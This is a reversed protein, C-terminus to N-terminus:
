SVNASELENASATPQPNVSETEEKPEPETNTDTEEEDDTFTDFTPKNRRTKIVEEAVNVTESLVARRKLEELYLEQTIDNRTRAADLTKLDETARVSLALNSEAISVSFDKPMEDGTWRASVRFAEELTREIERAYREVDSQFKSEDLARGTATPQGTRRMLPELSLYEMRAECDALDRFGIEAGKGTLEIWSVGGDSPVPIATGTSIKIKQDKQLGRAELFPIRGIGTVNRQLSTSQWHWLNMYALDYLVPDGTMFGTRNFYGTVIPIGPYTHNGSDVPRYENDDKEKRWLEWTGLVGGSAKFQKWNYEGSEFKTLTEQAELDNGSASPANYVRYQQVQKEAYRGDDEVSLEHIRIQTPVKKGNTMRKHKFGTIEPASYLTFYPRIDRMRWQQQNLGIGERPMDILVSFVGHDLGALFCNYAFPTLSTAALDVNLPITRLNEPLEGTLTMPKAFPRAALSNRTRKFKNYLICNNLRWKYDAPSEKSYKPLWLTRRSQMRETGALLDNVLPWRRSMATYALSPTDVTDRKEKMAAM